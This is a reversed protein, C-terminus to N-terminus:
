RKLNHKNTLKYISFIQTINNSNPITRFGQTGNVRINEPTIKKFENFLTEFEKNTITIRM